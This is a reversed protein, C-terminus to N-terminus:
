EGYIWEIDLEEWLPDAQLSQDMENLALESEVYPKIEDYTFDISQLKRHLYIIAVGTDAEFPESYSYEEMDAAVEEYGNPFFQSNTRIFGLYGGDSASEEDISYEQALLDFSAGEELEGIVKEATEFNQVVIHSLQMSSAFDYENGYQNYYSEVEEEPISTDETLLQQLQYRYRIDERWEEEKEEFEQEGTVGQMSTLLAVEREIVKEHVDIKKAEALQNVVAQDIMAELQNEGYSNRLSDMWEEYSIAEGDISAVSGDNNIEIEEDNNRVISQENDWFLLTAINTILLVVILALLLKRSM